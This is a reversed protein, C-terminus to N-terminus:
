TKVKQFKADDYSGEHFLSVPADAAITFMQAKTAPKVGGPTEHFAPCTDLLSEIDAYDFTAGIDKGVQFFTEVVSGARYVVLVPFVESDWGACADGAESLRMGVFSIERRRGALVDLCQNVRRCKPFTPEYLHVVVLTRADVDLAQLYEEKSCNVKFAGFTPMGQVSRLAAIRMKRYEELFEDDDDDSDDDDDDGGGGGTERLEAMAERQRETLQVPPPPPADPDRLRGRAVDLLKREREEALEVREAYQMKKFYRHQALIGKNGPMKRADPAEGYRLPEPDDMPGPLDPIPDDDESEEDESGGLSDARGGEEEDSDKDWHEYRGPINKRLFKDELGWDGM